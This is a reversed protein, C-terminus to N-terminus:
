YWDAMIFTCSRQKRKREMPNTGARCAFGTSSSSNFIQLGTSNAEHMVPKERQIGTHTREKMLEGHLFHMPVIHSFHWGHKVPSSLASSYNNSQSIIVSM